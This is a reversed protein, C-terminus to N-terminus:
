PKEPERFTVTVEQVKPEKEPMLTLFVEVSGKAGRLRFRGRLQNEATLPTVEVIPGTKALLEGCKRRWV